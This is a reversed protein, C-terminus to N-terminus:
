QNSTVKIVNAEKLLFWITKNERVQEKLSEILGEKQYYEKVKDIPQNVKVSIAKFADELEAEDLGIGEKRAIEDLLFALRIRKAADPRFREEFEKEKSDIEEKKFGKEALKAKADEIIYHLERAVFSKPVSFTNADVLKALLQKEMDQEIQNQLHAKMEERIDNNLAELSDKGLDKAFDDDLNPLQRLKIEKLKVHYVAKKGAMDKNPYKEPLVVECDREELKKMGAMKAALGPMLTLSEEEVLLWINERTKHIPKEDVFCGLDCIAYDGIVLPRDEQSIYKANIIRLNELTKSVDEEKLELAKKEIKIGKYDKLKIEPRTDVKAKFTLPQGAKFTLDMIEPTSIPHVGHEELAMSYAESILSKLAEEEAKKRHHKKVLDRPARGARFGPIEVVRSLEDYVDEIARAITEQGVEIEFHAECEDTKKIKTKM